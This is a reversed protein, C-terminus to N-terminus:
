SVYLVHNHTIDLWKANETIIYDKYREEYMGKNASYIMEEM